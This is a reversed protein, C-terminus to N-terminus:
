IVRMLAEMKIGKDTIDYRFMNKPILSRKLKLIKMRRHVENETEFMDLEIIGDAISRIANEIRKEALDKTVIVLTISNDRKVKFSLERLFELVDKSDYNLIFHNLSNIILREYSNKDLKLKLFRLTDHKIQRIYTKADLTESVMFSYIEFNEANFNPFYTKVYEVMHESTDDTAIYLVREGNKVGELAFHFSFIEAGAGPEEILLILSGGPFGGTLQSDLATIGCSYKKM